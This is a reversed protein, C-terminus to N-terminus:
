RFCFEKATTIAKKLNVLTNIVVVTHKLALVIIMFDQQLANQYLVVSIKKLTIKKRAVKVKFHM